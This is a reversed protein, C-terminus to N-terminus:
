YVADNNGNSQDQLTALGEQKETIRARSKHVVSMQHGDLPIFDGNDHADTILVDFEERPMDYWYHTVAMVFSPLKRNGEGSIRVFINLINGKM